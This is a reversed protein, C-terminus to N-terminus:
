QLPLLLPSFKGQAGFPISFQCVQKKFCMHTWEWFKWLWVLELNCMEIEVNNNARWNDPLKKSQMQADIAVVILSFPAWAWSTAPSRLECVPGPSAKRVDSAPQAQPAGASKRGGGPSWSCHCASELFPPLTSPGGGGHLPATGEGWVPWGDDQKSCTTPLPPTPTGWPEGIHICCGQEGGEREGGQHFVLEWKGSWVQAPMALTLERGLQLSLWTSAHFHCNETHSPHPILDKVTRSLWWPHHTNKRLRLLTIDTQQWTAEITSSPINNYFWLRM